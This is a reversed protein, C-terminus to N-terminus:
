RAFRLAEKLQHSARELNRLASEKHGKLDGRVGELEKRAERIEVLAYRMHPCNAYRLQEYFRRDRDFRRPTIGAARLGEDVQRVAGELAEMAERRHGGFDHRADRMEAVAERMEWLAGEPRLLKLEQAPAECSSVALVALALGAPPLLRHMM